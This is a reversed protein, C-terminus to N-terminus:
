VRRGEGVVSVNEILNCVNCLKTAFSVCNFLLSLAIWIKCYNHFLKVKIANWINIVPDFKVELILSEYIRLGM